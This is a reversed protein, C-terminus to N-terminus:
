LVYLLCFNTNFFFNLKVREFSFREGKKSKHESTKYQKWYIKNRYYRDTKQM